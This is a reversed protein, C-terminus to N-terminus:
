SCMWGWSHSHECVKVWEGGGERERERGWVEAKSVRCKDTWRNRERKRGRASAQVCEVDRRCSKKRESHCWRTATDLTSSSNCWTHLLNKWTIKALFIAKRILEGFFFCTMGFMYPKSEGTSCLLLIYIKKDMFHFEINSQVRSFKSLFFLLIFLTICTQILM